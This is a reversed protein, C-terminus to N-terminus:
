EKSTRCENPGSDGKTSNPVSHKYILSLKTKAVNYVNNAESLNERLIDITRNLKELSEYKPRLEQQKKIVDLDNTCSKVEKAIINTISDIEGQIKTIDEQIIVRHKMLSNLAHSIEAVREISKPNEPDVFDNHNTFAYLASLDM